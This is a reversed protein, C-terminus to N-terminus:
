LWASELGLWRRVPAAIDQDSLQPLSGWSAGAALGGSGSTGLYSQVEWREWTLERRLFAHM